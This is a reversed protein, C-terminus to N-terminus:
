QVVSIAMKWHTHLMCALLCLFNYVVTVSWSYFLKNQSIPQLSLFTSLVYKDIHIIQIGLTQPFLKVFTDGKHFDSNRDIRKDLRFFKGDRRTSKPPPTVEDEKSERADRWKSHHQYIQLYLLGLVKWLSVSAGDEAFGYRNKRPNYHVHDRTQLCLSHNITWVRIIVEFIHHLDLKCENAFATVPVEIVDNFFKRLSDSQYFHNELEYFIMLQWTVFMYWAFILRWAHDRMCMVM